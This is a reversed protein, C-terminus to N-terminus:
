CNEVRNDMRLLQVNQKSYKLLLSFRFLWLHPGNVVYYVYKHTKWFFGIICILSAAFLNPLIKCCIQPAAARQM